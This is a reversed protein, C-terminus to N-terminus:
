KNQAFHHCKADNKTTKKTFNSFIGMVPPTEKFHGLILGQWLLSDLQVEVKMLALINPTIQCLQNFSSPPTLLENILNNYILQLCPELWALQHWKLEAGAAEQPNYERRSNYTTTLRPVWVTEAGRAM